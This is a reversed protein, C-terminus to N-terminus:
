VTNDFQYKLGGTFKTGSSDISISLAEDGNTNTIICKSSSIDGNVTVDEEVSINDASLEEVTGQKANVNGNFLPANINNDFNYGLV